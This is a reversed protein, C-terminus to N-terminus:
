LSPLHSPLYNIARRLLTYLITRTPILANVDAGNEILYEVVEEHNNKQAIRIARDYGVHVDAVWKNVLYRVIPLHGNKSAVYLAKENKYHIDVGKEALYHFVEFNGDNSASILAECLDKNSSSRMLYDITTTTTSPPIPIEM